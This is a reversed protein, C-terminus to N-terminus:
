EPNLRVPGQIVKDSGGGEPRLGWPHYGPAVVRIETSGDLPVTVQFHTVGQYTLTGNLYVDATLPQGTTSDTNSTSSIPWVSKKM